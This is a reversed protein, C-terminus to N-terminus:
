TLDAPNHKFVPGQKLTKAVPPLANLSQLLQRISHSGTKERISKIQSRITSDAVRHIKAIEPIELGKCLAVMVSEETPSLEHNRAFLTIALNDSPPLRSLQVLVLPDDSEMPHSLPLIALSLERGDRDLTILSRHGRQATEVAGHLRETADDEFAVLVGDIQAILHRQALEHRAVHNAHLVRASCDVVVSGHDTEDLVRMLMSAPLTHESDHGSWAGMAQAAPRPSPATIIHNHM